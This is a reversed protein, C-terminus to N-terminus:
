KPIMEEQLLRSGAPAPIRLPRPNSTELSFWKLIKKIEQGRPGKFGQIRSLYHNFQLRKRFVLIKGM